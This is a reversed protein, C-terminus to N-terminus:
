IRNTEVDFPLSIFVTGWSGGQRGLDFPQTKEELQAALQVSQHHGSSM